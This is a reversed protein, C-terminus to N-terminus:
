NIRPIYMIDGNNIVLSYPRGFCAMKKSIIIEKIEMKGMLYFYSMIFPGPLKQTNVRCEHRRGEGDGIFLGIDLINISSPLSHLIIFLGKDNTIPVFIVKKFNSLHKYKIILFLTPTSLFLVLAALLWAIKDM